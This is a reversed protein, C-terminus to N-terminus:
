FSTGQLSLHFTSCVTSIEKVALLYVLKCTIDFCATRMKYLNAIVAVSNVVFYFTTYRFLHRVYIILKYKRSWIVEGVDDKLV